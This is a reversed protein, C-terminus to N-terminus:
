KVLLRQLWDFVTQMQRQRQKRVVDGLERETPLPGSPLPALAQIDRNFTM